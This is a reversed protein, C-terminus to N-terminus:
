CAGTRGLFRLCEPCTHVTDKCSKMVLPIWFLPFFVCCAVAMGMGAAMGVKHNIETVINKQCYPCVMSVPGNQLQGPIAVPQSQPPVAEKTESPAITQPGSAAPTQPMAIGQSDYAPPHQHFAPEASM